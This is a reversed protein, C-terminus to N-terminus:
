IKRCSTLTTKCVTAISIPRSQVCFVSQGFSGSYLKSALCFKRMLMPTSWQKEISQCKHVEVYYPLYELIAFPKKHEAKLGFFCQRVCQPKHQLLIAEDTLQLARNSQGQNKVCSCSCVHVYVSKQTMENLKHGRDQLQSIQQDSNVGDQWEAMLSSIQFSKKCDLLM